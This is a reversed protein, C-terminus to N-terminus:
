KEQLKTLRDCTKQSLAYQREVAQHM